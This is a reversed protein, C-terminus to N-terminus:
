ELIDSCYVQYYYVFGKLLNNQLHRKQKDTIKHTPLLDLLNNYSLELANVKALRKSFLLVTKAMLFSSNSLKEVFYQPHIFLYKYIGYRVNVCIFGEDNYASYQNDTIM